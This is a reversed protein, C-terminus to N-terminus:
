ESLVLDVNSVIPPYGQPVNVTVFEVTNDGSMLENVPVDMTQAFQGETTQDNLQGLEADNIPRTHWAGGNLRYKLAYTSSTDSALYWCSLSLLGHGMGEPDVDTFHLVQSPGDKEDAVRYGINMYKPGPSFMDEGLELLDPAEYERTTDIKPGDFGLNDWRASWAELMENSYKMTAHNHTSYTVYGRTFPLAVDSSVLLKADAYKGDGDSYDTGYLEVKSASISLEFHNLYGQKTKLCVTDAPKIETQVYDQYVLLSRVGVASGDAFGACDAMLQVEVGNKPFQGGEDNNVGKGGLSFSPTSIPEETVEVSIWGLLQKTYGQADFVVKGTRGEFDFPKRVRYSLQGYNQAAAVALLHNNPIATNPDCILSDQVPYVSAPLDARCPELAASRIGISLGNRTPLQPQIRSASWVLRDLEGARGRKAEAAPEDFQECFAAADGLGCNPAGPVVMVPPQDPKSGGQGKGGSAAGGSGGGKGASGSPAGGAGAGGAPKSDNSSGGAPAGSSGGSAAADGGSGCGALLAASCAGLLWGRVWSSHRLM